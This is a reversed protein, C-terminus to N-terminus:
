RYKRFLLLGSVTVIIIIFSFSLYIPITAPNFLPDDNFIRHISVALFEQSPIDNRIVIMYIGMAGLTVTYNDLYGANLVKLYATCTKNDVFLNYNQEDYISFNVRSSLHAEGMTVTFKVKTRSYVTSFNEVVQTGYPVSAFTVGAQMICNSEVTTAYSSTIFFHFESFFLILMTLFPLMKKPTIM